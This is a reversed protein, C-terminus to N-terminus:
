VVIRRTLRAAPRSKDLIKLCLSRMIDLGHTFERHAATIPLCEFLDSLQVGHSMIADANKNKFHRRVYLCNDANYFLRIADDASIVGSTLSQLIGLNLLAFFTLQQTADQGADTLASDLAIAHKM